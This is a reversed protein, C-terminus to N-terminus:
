AHMPRKERDRLDLISPLEVRLEESTIQGKLFGECLARIRDQAYTLPKFKSDRWRASDTKRLRSARFEIKTKDNKMDM